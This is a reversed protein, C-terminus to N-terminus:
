RGRSGEQRREGGNGDMKRGEKRWCERKGESRRKRKEKRRTKWLEADEGEEENREENKGKDGRKM